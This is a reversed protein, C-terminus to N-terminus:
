ECVFVYCLPTVTISSRKPKVCVRSSSLVTQYIYEIMRSKKKNFYEGFASEQHAMDM